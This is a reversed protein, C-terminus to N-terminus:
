ALAEVYHKLVRTENNEAREKAELAAMKIECEQKLKAQEIALKEQELALRDREIREHSELEMRRIMLEHEYRARDRDLDTRFADEDEYDTDGLPDALLWEAYKSM